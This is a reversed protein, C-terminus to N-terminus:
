INNGRAPIYRTHAWNCREPRTVVSLNVTGTDPYREVYDVNASCDHSTSSVDVRAGASLRVANRLRFTVPYGPEYRSVVSLPEVAGDRDRAVVEISEGGAARPQVSLVDVPQSFEVGGCAISRHRLARAPRPGFHLTLASADTRAIASKRYRVDVALRSHRALKQAVGSPFAITTDLPTWSGLPVDPLVRVTAEEILSRADPEFSWATIWRDVDLDPALVVHETSGGYTEVAPLHLRLMRGTSQAAREVSRPAIPPGQPAGGDTWAVLLEAEIASLSADNSFDGFGRDGPWPPMRGALVQERIAKAWSHAQEFTQLPMPAFGDATHCTACRSAVIPAVDVTWTVQTTRSHAGIQSATNACAAIAAVVSVM